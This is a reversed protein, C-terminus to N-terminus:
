RNTSNFVGSCPGVTDRMLDQEAIYVIASCEFSSSPSELVANGVLEIVTTGDLEDTYFSVSDSTGKVPEDSSDLQQQYYVPSGIVTVKTVENTSVSHEITAADGRIELTGQTIIVNDSLNWSRIGENISMQSDGDASWILRANKDLELATSAAPLLSVVALTTLLAAVRSTQQKSM